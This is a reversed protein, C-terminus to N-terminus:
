RDEGVYLEHWTNVPRHCRTHRKKARRRDKAEIVLAAAMFGVVAGPIMFSFILGIYNM